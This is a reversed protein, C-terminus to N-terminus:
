IINMIHKKKECEEKTVYNSITYVGPDDHVYVLEEKPQEMEEIEIRTFTPEKQQALDTETLEEVRPIPKEVECFEAM